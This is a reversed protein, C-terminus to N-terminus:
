LYPPENRKVSPVISDEGGKSVIGNGSVVFMVNSLGFGQVRIFTMQSQPAFYAMSADGSISRFGTLKAHGPQPTSREARNLSSTRWSNPFIAAGCCVPKAGAFSIAGGGGDDMGVADGDGDGAGGFCDAGIRMLMGAVGLAGEAEIGLAGRGTETAGAMTAGGGGGGVTAGMGIGDGM